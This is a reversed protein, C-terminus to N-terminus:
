FFLNLNKMLQYYFAAGFISFIIASLLWGLIIFLIIYVFVRFFYFHGCKPCSTSSKAIENGCTKCIKYGYSSYQNSNSTTPNKFIPVLLFVLLFLFSIISIILWFNEM